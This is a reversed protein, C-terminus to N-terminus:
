HTHQKPKQSSSLQKDELVSSISIICLKEMRRKKPFAVCNIHVQVNTNGWGGGEKKGGTRAEFPKPALFYKQTLKHSAPGLLRLKPLSPSLAWPLGSQQLSLFLPCCVQQDTLQLCHEQLVKSLTHSPECVSVRSTSDILDSICVTCDEPAPAFKPLATGM